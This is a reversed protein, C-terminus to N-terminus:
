TSTKYRTNSRLEFPDISFFFLRSLHVLAIQAPLTIHNPPRVFQARVFQALRRSLHFILYFTKMIKKVFSFPVHKWNPLRLADNFVVVNHPIGETSKSRDLLVRRERRQHPLDSRASPCALLCPCSLAGFRGLSNGM